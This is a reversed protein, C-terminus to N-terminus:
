RQIIPPPLRYFRERSNLGVNIDFVDLKGSSSTPSIDLIGGVSRLGFSDLVVVSPLFSARIACRSEIERLLSSTDWPFM